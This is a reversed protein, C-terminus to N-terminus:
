TYWGYKDIMEIIFQYTQWTAQPPVSHDSHYAYGKVAKGAEFKTSIEHEIKERDNTGMVMVDINGFMALKDGYKPCLDRVDMHAKAEIPQFCDFGAEVWLPVV